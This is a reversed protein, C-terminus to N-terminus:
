QKIGGSFERLFASVKSVLTETTEAVAKKRDTFGKSFRISFCRDDTVSISITAKRKGTDM